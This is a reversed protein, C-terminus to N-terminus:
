PVHHARSPERLDAPRSDVDDSRRAELAIHHAHAVELARAAERHAAECNDVEGRNHLAFKDLRFRDPADVGLAGVETRNDHEAM